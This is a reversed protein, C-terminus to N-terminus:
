EDRCGFIFVAIEFITYNKWHIMALETTLKDQKSITSQIESLTGAYYMEVIWEIMVLLSLEQAVVHQWFYNSDHYRGVAISAIMLCHTYVNLKIAQRYMDEDLM